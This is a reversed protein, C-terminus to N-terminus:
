SHIIPSARELVRARASVGNTDSRERLLIPLCPLLLFGHYLYQSVTFLKSIVSELDAILLGSLGWSQWRVDESDEGGRRGEKDGRVEGNGRVHGACIAAAIAPGLEGQILGM